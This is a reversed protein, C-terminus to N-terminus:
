IGEDRVQSAALFRSVGVPAGESRRPRARGEGREKEWGVTRPGKADERFAVARSEAGRTVKARPPGYPWADFGLFCMYNCAHVSEFCSSCSTCAYVFCPPLPPVPGPPAPATKGGM